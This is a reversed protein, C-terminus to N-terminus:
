LEVAVDYEGTSNIYLITEESTKIQHDFQNKSSFYSGPM